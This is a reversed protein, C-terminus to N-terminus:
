RRTGALCCLNCPASQSWLTHRCFGRREPLASRAPHERRSGGCNLVLRRLRVFTAYCYAMFRPTYEGRGSEALRCRLGWHASVLGPRLSVGRLGPRSVYGGRLPHGPCRLRAFHALRSGWVLHGTHGLRSCAPYAPRTSRGGRFACTGRSALAAAGVSECGINSGCFMATAEPM